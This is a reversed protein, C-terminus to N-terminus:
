LISLEKRNLNGKDKNNNEYKNLSPRNEKIFKIMQFIREDKKQESRIEEAQINWNKNIEPEYLLLLSGNATTKQPSQGEGLKLAKTFWNPLASENININNNNSDYCFGFIFYPNM